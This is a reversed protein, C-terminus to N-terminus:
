GHLETGSPEREEFLGLTEATMDIEVGGAEGGYAVAVAERVRLRKRISDVLLLNGFDEGVINPFGLLSDGAEDAYRECLTLEVGKDVEAEVETPAAEGSGSQEGVEVGASVIGSGFLEKEPVVGPGELKRGQAGAAFCLEAQPM